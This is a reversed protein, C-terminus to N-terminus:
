VKSLIIEFDNLNQSFLKAIFAANYERFCVEKHWFETEFGDFYEKIEGDKSSLFSFATLM